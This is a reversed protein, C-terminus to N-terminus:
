EIIEMDDDYDDHSHRPRPTTLGLRSAQAAITGRRKEPIMQQAEHLGGGDKYCRELVTLQDSSWFYPHSSISM